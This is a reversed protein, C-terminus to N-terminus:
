RTGRMLLQALLGTTPTEARALEAKAAEVKARSAEVEAKISALEAECGLQLEIADRLQEIEAESLPELDTM